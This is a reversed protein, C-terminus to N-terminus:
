SAVAANTGNKVRNLFDQKFGAFGPESDLEQVRHWIHKKWEELKALELLHNMSLEYETKPDFM